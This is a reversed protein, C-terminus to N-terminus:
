KPIFLTVDVFYKMSLVHYKVMLLHRLDYSRNRYLLLSHTNFYIGLQHVFNLSELDERLIIPFPMLVRQHEPDHCFM